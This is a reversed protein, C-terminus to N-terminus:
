SGGRRWYHPGINSSKYKYKRRGSSYVAAKMQIEMLKVCIDICIPNIKKEVLCKSSRAGKASCRRALSLHLSVVERPLLPDEQRIALLNVTRDMPAARLLAVVEEQSKGDLDVGNVQM